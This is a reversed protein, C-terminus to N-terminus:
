LATDRANSLPLRLPSPQQAPPPPPARPRARPPGGPPPLDPPFPSPPPAGGSSPWVEPEKGHAQVAEIASRAIGSDPDTKAPGYPGHVDIRLDGFGRKELHARLKRLTGAVTM